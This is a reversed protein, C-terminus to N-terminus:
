PANCSAAPGCHGGPNTGANRFQVVSYVTRLSLIRVPHAPVPPGTRKAAWPVGSLTRLPLGALQTRGQGFVGGGSQSCIDSEIPSLNVSIAAWSRNSEGRNAESGGILRDNYYGRGALLTMEQLSNTCRHSLERLRLLPFPRLSPTIDVLVRMMNGSLEFIEWPRLSEKWAPRCQRICPAGPWRDKTPRTFTVSNKDVVYTVHAVM